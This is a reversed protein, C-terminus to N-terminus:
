ILLVWVDGSASASCFSPSLSLSLARSRLLISDYGAPWDAAPAFGAAARARASVRLERASGRVVSGHARTAAAGIARRRRRLVQVHLGSASARVSVVAGREANFYVACIYM